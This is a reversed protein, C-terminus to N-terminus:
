SAVAAPTAARETRGRVVEDRGRQFADAFGYVISFKLVNLEGENKPIQRVPAGSDARGGFGTAM